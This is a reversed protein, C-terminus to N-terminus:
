YGDAALRAGRGRWGSRASSIGLEGLRDADDKPRRVAKGGPTWAVAAEIKRWRPSATRRADHSEIPM